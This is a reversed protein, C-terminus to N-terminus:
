NYNSIYKRLHLSPSLCLFEKAKLLIRDNERFLNLDKEFM